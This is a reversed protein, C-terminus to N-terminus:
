KFNLEFLKSKCPCIDGDVNQFVYDELKIEYEWTKTRLFVYDPFIILNGSNYVKIIWYPLYSSREAAKILENCRIFNLLSYREHM